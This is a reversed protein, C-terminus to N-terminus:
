HHVFHYYPLNEGLGETEGALECEVSQDVTMMMMMMMM